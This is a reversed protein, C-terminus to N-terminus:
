GRCDATPSCQVAQSVGLSIASWWSMDVNKSLYAIDDISM